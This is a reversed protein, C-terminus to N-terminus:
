ERRCCENTPPGIPEGDEYTAIAALDPYVIYQHAAGNCLAVLLADVITPTPSMLWLAVQLGHESSGQLNEVDRVLEQGTALTITIRHGTAHVNTVSALFTDPFAKSLIEHNRLIISWM